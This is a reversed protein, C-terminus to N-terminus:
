PKVPKEVKYPTINEKADAPFVEVEIEGTVGSGHKATIKATGPAVATIMDEEIKVVRPNSSVFEVNEDTVHAPEFEAYFRKSDGVLLQRDLNIIIKEPEIFGYRVSLKAPIRKYLEGFAKSYDETGYTGDEPKAPPLSSNVCKMYAKGTTKDVLMLYTEVTYGFEYDNYKKSQVARNFIFAMWDADDENTRKICGNPLRFCDEEITFDGDHFEGVLDVYVNDSIASPLTASTEIKSYFIEPFSRGYEDKNVSERFGSIVAYIDGSSCNYYPGYDSKMLPRLTDFAKEPSSFQVQYDEYNRVAPPDSYAVVKDWAKGTAKEIVFLHTEIRYGEDGDPYTKTQRSTDAIFVYWDAEDPDTALSDTPLGFFYGSGSYEDSDMNCESWGCDIKIYTKGTMSSPTGNTANASVRQEYRYDNITNEIEDYTCGAYSGIDKPLLTMLKGIATQPCYDGYTTYQNTQPPNKNAAAGMYVKGTAAEVLILRTEAQYGPEKYDSNRMLHGNADVPYYYGVLKDFEYIYALWTESDPTEPDRLYLPSIGYFDRETVGDSNSEWVAENDPLNNDHSDEAYIYVKGKISGPLGGNTQLNNGKNEEDRPDCMNIESGLESEIYELPYGFFRGYASPARGNFTKLGKISLITSFLEHTNGTYPVYLNINALKPFNQKIEEASWQHHDVVSMKENVSQIGVSFTELNPFLLQPEGGDTMADPIVVSEAREVSVTKLTQCNGWFIEELGCSESDIILETLGEFLGPVVGQPTEGQVVLSGIKSVPEQPWCGSVSEVTLRKVKGSEALTRVANLAAGAEDSGDYTLKLCQHAEDYSLMGVCDEECKSILADIQEATEAFVQVSGLVLIAALVAIFAVIKKQKM